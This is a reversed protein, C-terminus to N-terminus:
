RITPLALKLGVVICEQRGLRTHWKPQVTLLEGPLSVSDIRLGSLGAKLADKQLVLNLRHIHDVQEADCRGHLNPHVDPSKLRYHHRVHRWHAKVILLADTSGSTSGVGDRDGQGHAAAATM